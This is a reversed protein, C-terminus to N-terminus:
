EDDADREDRGVGDNIKDIAKILTYIEETQLNRLVTKVKLIEKGTLYEAHSFDIADLYNQIARERIDRPTETSLLMVKEEFAEEAEEKDEYYLMDEPQCRMYGYDYVRISYPDEMENVKFQMIVWTGNRVYVKVDFDGNFDINCFAM